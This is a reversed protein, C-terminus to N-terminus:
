HRKQKKHAALVAFPSTTKKLHCVCPESNLNMGCGPCLGKCTEACINKGYSALLLQDRCIEDLSVIPESVFFTDLDGGDLKKEKASADNAGTLECVVSVQERIRRVFSELCRDCRVAMDAQVTGTVLVREPSSRQLLMEGSV